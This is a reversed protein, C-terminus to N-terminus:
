GSYNTQLHDFLFIDVFITKKTANAAGRVIDSVFTLGLVTVSEATNRLIESQSASLKM